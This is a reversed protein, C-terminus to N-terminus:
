GAIGHDVVSASIRCCPHQDAPRGLVRRHRLVSDHRQRTPSLRVDRSIHPEGDPEPWICQRPGTVLSGSDQVREAWSRGRRRRRCFTGASRSKPSQLSAAEARQASPSGLPPFNSSRVLCGDPRRQPRHPLGTARPARRYATSWDTRPSSDRCRTWTHGPYRGCSRTGTTTSGGANNVVIDVGGDAKATDVLAALADLDNADAPVVVARRGLAEVEKAVSRLQDETRATLVM